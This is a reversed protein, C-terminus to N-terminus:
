KFTEKVVLIAIARILGEKHLQLIRGCAFAELSLNEYIM